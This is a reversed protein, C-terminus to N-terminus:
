AGSLASGRGLAWTQCGAWAGPARLARAGRRGCRTNRVYAGPLAGQPPLRGQPEAAREAGERDDVMAQPAFAGSQACARARAGRRQRQRLAGWQGNGSPRRRSEAARPYPCTRPDMGCPDSLARAESQGQFCCRGRYPLPLAPGEGDGGAGQRASAGHVGARSGMRRAVADLGGRLVIRVSRGRCERQSLDARAGNGRSLRTAGAYDGGAANEM